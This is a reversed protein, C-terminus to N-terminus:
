ADPYSIGHVIKWITAVTVGYELAIARLTIGREQYEARMQRAQADTFRSRHHKEGKKTYTRTKSHRNKAYMDALNDAQTGLWLHAPNCCPPNDCAHCIVKGKPIPSNHIEYSVRHARRPRRRTLVVGYGNPDIPGQWEWCEDPGRKDINNWFHEEVSRAPKLRASHGVVFRVPHGAIHGLRTNTRKAIPAPQGCGCECLGRPNPGDGAPFRGSHGKLYRYPQAKGLGKPKNAWRSIPADAGCGCQCKGYPQLLGHQAVWPAYDQLNEPFHPTSTSHNM